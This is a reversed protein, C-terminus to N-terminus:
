AQLPVTHSGLLIVVIGSPHLLRVDHTGPLQRRSLNTLLPPVGAGGALGTRQRMTLPLMSLGSCRCTLGAQWLAGAGSSTQLWSLCVTLM